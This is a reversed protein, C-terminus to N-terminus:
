RSVTAADPLPRRHPFALWGRSQGRGGTEPEAWAAWTNPSGWLAGLRERGLRWAQFPQWVLALLSEELETAHWPDLLCLQGGLAAGRPHPPSTGQRSLRVGPVSSLDILQKPLKVNLERHSLQGLCVRKGDRLDELLQKAALSLLSWIEEESLAEGRVQLASALTVSAPSMGAFVCM